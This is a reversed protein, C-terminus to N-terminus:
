LIERVSFLCVTVKTPTYLQKCLLKELRLVNLDTDDCMHHARRPFMGAKEWDWLERCDPDIIM